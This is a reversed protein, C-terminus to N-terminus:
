WDNLVRLNKFNFELFDLYSGIFLRKTRANSEENSKESYDINAFHLNDGLLDISTSKSGLMNPFPIEGEIGLCEVEKIDDVHYVQTGLLIKQSIKINFLEPLGKIFHDDHNQFSIAYFGQADTLWGDKNGEFLIYWENWLGNEWGMKQRGIVQFHGKNYIGTTGLQIPSMDTPMPSSKGINKIMSDHRVLISSCYSCVLYITISSKFHVQAGCAPCSIEM